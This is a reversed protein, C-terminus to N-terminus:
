LLPLGQWITGAAHDTCIMRSLELLLSQSKRHLRFM